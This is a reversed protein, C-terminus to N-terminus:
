CSGRHKGHRADLFVVLLAHTPGDEGGDESLLEQEKTGGKSRQLSSSPNKTGNKMRLKIADRRLCIAALGRCDCVVRLVCNGKLCVAGRSTTAAGTSSMREKIAGRLASMQSPKGCSRSL